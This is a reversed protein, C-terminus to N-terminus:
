ASGSWNICDGGGGVGRGCRGNGGLQPAEAERRASQLTSRIGGRPTLRGRRALAGHDRCCTKREKEKMLLKGVGTM